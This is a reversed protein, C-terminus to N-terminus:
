TAAAALANSGPEQEGAEVCRWTMTGHLQVKGGGASQLSAVFDEILRIGQFLKVNAKLVGSYLTTSYDDIATCAIPLEVDGSIQPNKGLKVEVNWSAQPFTLKLICQSGQRHMKGVPLNKDEIKENQETIVTGAFRCQDIEIELVSKPDTSQRGLPLKELKEDPMPVNACSTCGGM